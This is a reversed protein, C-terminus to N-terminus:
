KRELIKISEIAAQVLYPDKGRRALELAALASRDGISGLATASQRRVEGDEDSTLLKSMPRVAQTAASGNTGLARAAHARVFANKDSLAATLSVVADADAFEGLSVAAAGRVEADKDQLAAILAATRDIGRFGGLAYAAMKRVFAYKDKALCAALLPVAPAERRNAIGAAAAARVRPSRDALASLLASTAASGEVHSIEMIAERRKEQDSSNLQAFWRSDEVDTQRSGQPTLQTQSPIIYSLSSGSSRTFLTLVLLGTGLLTQQTVARM